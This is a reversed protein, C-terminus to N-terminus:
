ESGVAPVAAKNLVGQRLYNGTPDAKNTWTTSYGGVAIYYKQSMYATASYDGAAPQPSNTSNLDTRTDNPTSPCVYGPIITGVLQANGPDNWRLSNNYQNYLNVQDLYPLVMMTWCEWGDDWTGGVFRGLRAPPFCNLSSEYNALALGMQKLNNKCQTRRAAERAQQVAPLLLSVLVAIIAIVVLLEILTFGRAARRRSNALM